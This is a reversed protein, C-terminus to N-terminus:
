VTLGFLELSNLLFDQHFFSFFHIIYVLFGKIKRVESCDWIPHTSLIVGDRVKDNKLRGEQM